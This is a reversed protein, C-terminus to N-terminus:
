DFTSTHIAMAMTVVMLVFSITMVARAGGSGGPFSPRSLGLGALVVAWAALVGGAVYFPVKSVTAVLLLSSV